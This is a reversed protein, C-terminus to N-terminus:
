LEEQTARCVKRKRVSVVVPLPEGATFHAVSKRDFAKGAFTILLETNAVPLLLSVAKFDFCYLLKALVLFVSKQALRYGVCLRRGSGFQWSAEWIKSEDGDLWREPEFGEPNPYTMPDDARAAHNIVFILDYKFPGLTTELVGPIPLNMYISEFSWFVM